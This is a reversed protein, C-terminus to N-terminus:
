VKSTTKHKQWYQFHPTKEDLWYASNETVVLIEEFKVGVGNKAIHPEIAWLGAEVRTHTVDNWIPSKSQFSSIIEEAMQGLIYGFTQVQFGMIWTHPLWSFPIKGVKHGLVGAPYLTHCNTYGLDFIIQNVHRYIESMTKEKLVLDLIELRFIELDMIGQHVLENEGFAFAYGVDASYGDVIPAVDLIVPMGKELKRESPLFETGFHPPTLRSVFPILDLPRKFGVFATRDGFWAFGYHFFSAKNKQKIKQNIKEAAEKETIGEYLEKQVEEVVEYALRQVSQFRELEEKNYIEKSM